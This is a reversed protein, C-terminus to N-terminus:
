QTVEEQLLGAEVAVEDLSFAVTGEGRRKHELFVLSRGGLNAALDFRLWESTFAGSGGGDTNAIKVRYRNQLPDVEITFSYTSGLDVRVGTSVGDLINGSEDYGHGNSLIWEPASAERTSQIAWITREAGAILPTGEGSWECIMVKGLNANLRGGPVEELRYLFSVTYPQALEKTPYRLHVNWRKNTEESAVAVRLYPGSEAALPHAERIGIDTEQPPTAGNGSSAWQVPPKGNGWQAPDSFSEKFQAQAAVTALGFLGCGAIRALLAQPARPAAASPREPAFPLPSMLTFM